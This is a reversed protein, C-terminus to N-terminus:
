FIPRELDKYRAARAARCVGRCGDERQNIVIAERLALGREAEEIGPQVSGARQAEVVDRRAIVWAAVTGSEGGNNSPIRNTGRLKKTEENKVESIGLRM